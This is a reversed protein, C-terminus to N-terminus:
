KCLVQVLKWAKVEYSSTIQYSYYPLFESIDVTTDCTVCIPGRNCAIDWHPPLGAKMQNQPLFIHPHFEQIMKM